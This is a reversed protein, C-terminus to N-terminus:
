FGDARVPQVKIHRLSKLMQRKTKSPFHNSRKVKTWIRTSRVLSIRSLTSDHKTRELENRQYAHKVMVKEEKTYTVQMLKAKYAIIIM